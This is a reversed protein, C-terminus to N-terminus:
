RVQAIELLQEAHIQRPLHRVRLAERGHSDELSAEVQLYGSERVHLPSM